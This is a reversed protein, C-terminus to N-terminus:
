LTETSNLTGRCEDYRCKAKHCKPQQCEAYHCQAYCCQAYHYKQVGLGDAKDAKNTGM